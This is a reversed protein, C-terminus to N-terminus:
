NETCALLGGHERWCSPTCGPIYRCKPCGNPRAKFWSPPKYVMRGNVRTAPRKLVVKKAKAAKTKTKKGKAQLQRKKGPKAANGKRKAAKGKGKAAQGKAKSAARKRGVARDGIAKEIAAMVTGASSEPKMKPSKPVATSPPTGPASSQGLKPQQQVVDVDPREQKVPTELHSTVRRPQPSPVLALQPPPLVPPPLMLQQKPMSFWRHMEMESSHCRWGRQQIRNYAAQITVLDLPCTIPLSDPAWFVKRAMEPSQALLQLPNGPYMTIYVEPEATYAAKIAKKVGEFMHQLQFRPLNTAASEGWVLVALTAAIRASTPESPNILGAANLHACFPDPTKEEVSQDFVAKTFFKEVSMFQQQARRSKLNCQLRSLLLRMLERCAEPAIRTERLRRDVEDFDATSLNKVDRAMECLREIQIKEQEQRQEGHLRSLLSGVAELRSSFADM